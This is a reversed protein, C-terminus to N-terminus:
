LFKRWSFTALDGIYFRVIMGAEMLENRKPKMGPNDNGNVSLIRCKTYLKIIGLKCKIFVYRFVDIDPFQIAFQLFRGKCDILCFFGLM